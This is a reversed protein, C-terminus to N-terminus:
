AFVFSPNMMMSFKTGSAFYVNLTCHVLPSFNQPHMSYSKPSFLHSEKSTEMNDRFPQLFTTPLLSVAIKSVGSPHTKGGVTVVYSQISMKKMKQPVM